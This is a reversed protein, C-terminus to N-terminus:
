DVSLSYHHNGHGITAQPNTPEGVMSGPRTVMGWQNDLTRNSPLNVEETASTHSLFPYTDLPYADFEEPAFTSPTPYFSANNFYAMPIRHSTNPLLSSHLQQSRQIFPTPYTLFFIGREFDGHSLYMETM